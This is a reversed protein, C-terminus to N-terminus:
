ALGKVPNLPHDNGSTDAYGNHQSHEVSAHSSGADAAADGDYADAVAHARADPFLQRRHRRLPRLLPLYYAGHQSGPKFDSWAIGDSREGSPLPDQSQHSRGALRQVPM